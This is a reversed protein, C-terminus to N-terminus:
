KVYVRLFQQSFDKPKEIKIIHHDESNFNILDDHDLTRDAMLVEASAVVEEGRRNRVMRTTDKIRAKVSTSTTTPEQHIDRTVTKITVTDILYANIM